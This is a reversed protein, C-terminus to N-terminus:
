KAFFLGIQILWDGNPAKWILSFTPSAIVAKIKLKRLPVDGTVPTLTQSRMWFPNDFLFRATGETLNLTPYIVSIINLVLSRRLRLEPSSIVWRQPCSSAAPLIYRRRCCMVAKSVTNKPWACCSAGKSIKWNMTHKFSTFTLQKDAIKNSFFCCIILFSLLRLLYVQYGPEQRKNYMRQSTISNYFIVGQKEFM